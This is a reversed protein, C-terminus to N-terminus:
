TAMNTKFLILIVGNVQMYDTEHEKSLQSDQTHLQLRQFMLDGLGM